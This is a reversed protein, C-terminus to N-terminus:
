LSLCSKLSFCYAMKLQWIFGKKRWKCNIEWDELELIHIMVLTQNGPEKM